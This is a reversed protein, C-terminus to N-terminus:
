SRNELAKAKINERTVGQKKRWCSKAFFNEGMVLYGGVRELKGYDLSYQIPLDIVTLRIRRISWPTNGSERETQSKTKIQEQKQM